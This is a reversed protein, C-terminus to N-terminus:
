VAKRKVRAAAPRVYREGAIRAFLNCMEITAERKVRLAAGFTKQFARRTLHTVLTAATAAHQLRTKCWSRLRSSLRRADQFNAWHYEWQSHKIHSPLPPANSMVEDVFSRLKARADDITPPLDREHLTLPFNLFHRQYPTVWTVMREAIE